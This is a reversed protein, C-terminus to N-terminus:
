PAEEPPTPPPAASQAPPAAPAAPPSAAEPEAKGASARPDNAARKAPKKAAGAKSAEPKEAKKADKAEKDGKAAEVAEAQPAEEAKGNAEDKGATGADEAEKAKGGGKAEKAEKATKDDEAPAEAEAKGDEVAAAEAKEVGADPKGAEEGEQAGEALRRLYSETAKLLAIATSTDRKGGYRELNRALSPHKGDQQRVVEPDLEELRMVAAALGDAGGRSWDDKFARALGDLAPLLEERGQVESIALEPPKEKSGQQATWDPIRLAQLTRRAALAMDDGSRPGGNPKDLYRRIYDALPESKMVHAQALEPVLECLQHLREAIAIAGQQSWGARYAQAAEDLAEALPRAEADAEIAPRAAGQRSQGDRKADRGERADRGREGRGSASERPERAERADRAERGERGSQRGRGGRSRRGEGRGRSEQGEQGEGGDQGRRGERAAPPAPPAGGAVADEKGGGGFWRSLLGGRREEAHAPAAQAVPQAAAGRQRGRGRPQKAARTRQMGRVAPSPVDDLPAALERPDSPAPDGMRELLQMPEQDAKLVDIKSKHYGRSPDALVQVDVGEDREIQQVATRLENNLLNALRPALLLRLRPRLDDLREEGGGASQARLSAQRLVDVGLGFLDPEWGSGGCNSCPDGVAVSLEQGIRQRTMEMLGFRSIPELQVRARDKLTAQEMAQLVQAREDEEDMDIFDIVVLGGIDRLKLQRAIEPILALNVALAQSREGGKEGSFGKSNVDITTMAETQDIVIEAGTRISVRRMLTKQVQEDIKYKEFLPIEGSYLQAKGADEPALHGIIEQVQRLAAEDDVVVKELYPRFYDRMARPIAGGDLWILSPAGRVKAEAQVREWTAGLDDMEGQLAENGLGNSAGRVLVGCGKPLKLRDAIKQAREREKGQLHKPVSRKGDAGPLLVLGHGALSLDTTLRPGKNPDRSEAQVQVMVVDGEKPLPGGNRSPLFGDRDGGIDLFAAQLDKHVGNVRANYIGGRLDPSNIREIILNDLNGGDDLLAVRTEGFVSANILINSIM